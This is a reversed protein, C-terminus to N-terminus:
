TNYGHQVLRVEVKRVYGSMVRSLVIANGRAATRYNVHHLAAPEAVLRRCCVATCGFMVRMRQAPWYAGQMYSVSPVPSHLAAGRQLLFRPAATILQLPAVIQHRHNDPIRM